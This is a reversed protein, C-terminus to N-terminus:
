VPMNTIHNVKEEQGERGPLLRTADMRGRTVEAIWTSVTLLCSDWTAESLRSYKNQNKQKAGQQWAQTLILPYTKCNTRNWAEYKSIGDELSAKM